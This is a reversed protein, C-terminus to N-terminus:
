VPRWQECLAQVLAFQHGVRHILESECPCVRPRPEMIRARATLQALVAKGFWDSATAPGLSGKVFEDTLVFNHIAIVPDSLAEEIREPNSHLVKLTQDRLGIWPPEGVYFGDIDAADLQVANM